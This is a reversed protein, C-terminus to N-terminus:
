LFSRLIVHISDPNFQQEWRSRLPHRPPPSFHRHDKNSLMLSSINVQPRMCKGTYTLRFVSRGLGVAVPTSWLEGIM